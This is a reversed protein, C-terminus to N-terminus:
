MLHDRLTLRDMGAGLHGVARQHVVTPWLPSSMMAVDSPLQAQQFSSQALVAKRENPRGLMDNRRDHFLAIRLTEVHAQKL